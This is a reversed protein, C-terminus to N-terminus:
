VINYSEGRVSWAPEVSLLQLGSGPEIDAAICKWGERPPLVLGQLGQFFFFFCSKNAQGVKM